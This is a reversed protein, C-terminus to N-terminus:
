LRTGNVSTFDYKNDEAGKKKGDAAVKKEDANKRKDESGGKRKDEKQKDGTGGKKKDTSGSKRKEESVVKKKESSSKVKEESKKKSTKVKDESSTKVLSHSKRHRNMQLTKARVETLEEYMHSQVVRERVETEDLVAETVMHSSAVHSAMHSSSSAMHSSSAMYSISVSAHYSSSASHNMSSPTLPSLPPSIDVEEYDHDLRRRRPGCKLLDDKNGLSDVSVSASSNTNFSKLSTLQMNTGPNPIFPSTRTDLSTSKAKLLAVKARMEEVSEYNPDNETDEITENDSICDKVTQYNALTIEGSGEDKLSSDPIAPQSSSQPPSDPKKLTSYGDESDEDEHSGWINLSMASDEPSALHRDSLRDGESSTQSKTMLHLSDLSPPVPAVSSSSNNNGGTSSSSSIISSSLGAGSIGSTFWSDDTFERKM